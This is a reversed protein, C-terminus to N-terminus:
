KPHLRQLNARARSHGPDISLARRYESEAEALRGAQEYAYGLNNRVRAKRPSRQATDEWLAIESQYSVNRLVTLAGLLVSLIAVAALVRREGWWRGLATAGRSLALFLGWSALYLQRDNAVDLRPIFSNTPVLHLLFWLVGFGGAWGKWLGGLGAILAVALLFVALAGSLTWDVGAPLDPDINPSRLLLLGSVLWAIGRMQVLLNAPASRIDFSYELLPGYGPHALVFVSFAALLAWHVAQARAARRWGHRVGRATECLALAFPLTFATEKALAALLFLVPSLGHLLLRSGEERGQMYTTVSGLYLLSMLSVSRGSIYTVAETQVPHLAFLLAACLAPFRAGSGDLRRGLCYLFLANGAHLAVNVLHFGFVGLGCTWNLTYSLKLVPRIGRPLGELFASWAHVAPNDVIVNYDDFQFVGAFSNLYAAAVTGLLLLSPGFRRM